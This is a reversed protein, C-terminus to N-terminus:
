ARHSRKARATVTRTRPPPPSAADGHPGRRPHRPFPRHPHRRRTKTGGDDAGTGEPEQEPESRIAWWVIVLLAVIPIKLGFMLWVFAWDM